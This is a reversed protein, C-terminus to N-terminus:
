LKRKYNIFEYILMGLLPIAFIYYTDTYSNKSSNEFDNIVSKQIDKLKNNIDSQQQMHIYDIGIDNAISKLNNEDIKSIADQFPYETYDELYVEKDNYDKVKMKGGKETGYGFCLGM